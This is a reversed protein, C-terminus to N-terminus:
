MQSIIIRRSQAVTPRPKREFFALASSRTAEIGRAQLAAVLEDLNGFVKLRDTPADWTMRHRPPLAKFESAIRWSLRVRDLDPIITGGVDELARWWDIEEEVRQEYHEHAKSEIERQEWRKRREARPKHTAHDRSLLQAAEAIRKASVTSAITEGDRVLRVLEIPARAKRAVAQLPLETLREAIPSRRKDAPRLVASGEDQEDLNFAQSIANTFSSSEKGIVSVGVVSVARRYLPGRYNANEFGCPEGSGIASKAEPHTDYDLALTEFTQAKVIRAKAGIPAFPEPDVHTMSGHETSLTVTGGTRMDFWPSEDGGALWASSACMPAFLRPHSTWIGGGNPEPRRKRLLREAKRKAEARSVGLAVDGRLFALADATTSGPLRAALALAFAEFTGTPNTRDVYTYRGRVGDFAIAPRGDLLPLAVRGGLEDLAAVYPARGNEAYHRLQEAKNTVLQDWAGSTYATICSNMGSSLRATLGFGYPKASLEYPQGMDHDTFAKLVERSSLPLKAVVPETLWQPPKPDRGLNREILHLWFAEVNAGKPWVIGGLGSETLQTSTGDDETGDERKTALRTAIRVQPTGAEDFEFMAYRKSSVAYAWLQRRSGDPRLNVDEIKLISGPVMARNYPSLSSFKATIADVEAFSLARIAGDADNHPGSYRVHDADEWPLPGNPVPVRGGFPTAVIACSDTDELAYCGGRSVVERELMAFLLRAAATIATAIPAFYFRGPLEPADTVVEFAESGTRVLVTTVDGEDQANVEAYIGYATANAIVKLGKDLRKRQEAALSPDRKAAQRQEIVRAFVDEHAPDITAYGAFEVARLGSMMQLNGNADRKPVLRYARLIKPRDHTMTISAALDCGHYWAPADSTARVMGILRDGSEADDYAARVPFVGSGDLLIEAFFNLAPWTESDFLKEPDLRAILERAEATCDEWSVAAARLTEMNGLLANVTPYDSLFDVYQVPVFAKRIRVSTRGGYFASQAIGLADRPFTPWRELPPTIGMADLYAKGISASSFARDADLPIPHRHFEDLLAGLLEGTTAVDQLCYKVYDSDYDFGPHGGPEGKPAVGWAKAASRLSYPRDTLARALTSLDLFRGKYAKWEAYERRIATEAEEQGSKGAEILRRASRETFNLQEKSKNEWPAAEVGRAIRAAKRHAWVLITAASGKDSTMTFAISAKAPGLSRVIVAPRFPHHVVRGSKSRVIRGHKAKPWLLLSHAKGGQNKATGAQRAIRALDFPLNFGVILSRKRYAYRYFGELFETQSSVHIGCGEVAEIGRVAERLRSENSPPTGPGDAYFVGRGIPKADYAERDALKEYLAWAGFTLRQSHDNATAECDFVFALDPLPSRKRERTNRPPKPEVLECYGRTAAEIRDNM